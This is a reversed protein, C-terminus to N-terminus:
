GARAAAAPPAALIAEALSQGLRAVAESLAAVRSPMSNDAATAMVEARGSFPPPRGGPRRLRWDAVLVATGADDVDFQQVDVEVQVDVPTPLRPPFAIVQAFPMQQQMDAVLVQPLRLDLPAAWHEFTLLEVRYDSLRLVFEPRDVYAPIRVPGVGVTMPPAGDRAALPPLAVEALTYHQTPPTSSCAAFVAAAFLLALARCLPFSNM